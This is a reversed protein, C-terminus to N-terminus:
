SCKVQYASELPEIIDMKLMSEVESDVIERLAHYTSYQKTRIPEDSSLNIEQAVLSTKVSM